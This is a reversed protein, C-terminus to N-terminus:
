RKVPSNQEHELVVSDRCEVQDLTARESPPPLLHHHFGVDVDNPANELRLPLSLVVNVIGDFDYGDGDVFWMRQILVCPPM